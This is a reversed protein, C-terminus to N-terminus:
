KELVKIMDQGEIMESRTSAFYRRFTRKISTHVESNLFCLITATIAGQLSAFALGLYLLVLSFIDCSESLGPELLFFLYHVGFVLILIFTARLASKFHDPSAMLKPFLVRIINCLLVLNGILATLPVISYIWALTPMTETWCKRNYAPLSHVICYPIMVTVPLAWGLIYFPTMRTQERFAAVFMKHLYIGECLMWAYNTLNATKYFVYSIICWTKNQSIINDKHSDLHTDAVMMNFAISAISTFIFSLFFNLHVQIRLIHYQKYVIYLFCSLISAFLSISQLSTRLRNQHINNWQGTYTCGSYDTKEVGNKGFWTGDHNCTKIAKGRYCNPPLRDHIQFAPEPCIDEISTGALAYPWCNWGDWKAPCYKRGDQPPNLHLLTENCCRIASKCCGIFIERQFSDRFMRLIFDKEPHILDFQDIDAYIIPYRTEHLGHARRTLAQLSPNYQWVKEGNRIYDSKLTRINMFNYCQACMDLSFNKLSSYLVDQHNSHCTISEQGAIQNWSLLTVFITVLITQPHFFLDSRHNFMM